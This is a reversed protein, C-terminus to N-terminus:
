QGPPPAVRLPRSPAQASAQTPQQVPKTPPAHVVPKPSALSSLKQSVAQDAAELRAISQAMKEQNVALQEITQRVAALDITIPKLQQQREAAGAPAMPTLQQDAPALGAKLQQQAESADVPPVAPKSTSAPLWRALSPAQARIMDTAQDGYSQWALTGGIGALVAFLFRASARFMRSIIPPRVIMYPNNLPIHDSRDPGLVHLGGAPRLATDLNATTM